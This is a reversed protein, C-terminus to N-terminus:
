PEITYRIKIGSIYMETWNANTPNGNIDTCTAWISYHYTDNDVVNTAFINITETRPGSVNGNTSFNVINGSGGSSFSVRRLEVNIRNAASNDYYKISIQNIVAGHPLQVSAALETNENFNGSAAINSIFVPKEDTAHFAAPALSLYRTVAPAEVINGLADAGLQRIGTGALANFRVNGAVHFDTAPVAVGIGVRGTSRGIVLLNGLEGGSNRGFFELQSFISGVYRLGLGLTGTNNSALFLTATDGVTATAPSVMLTTNSSNSEVELDADPTADNIGVKGGSWYIDNGSQIWKGDDKDPAAEWQSGNWKLVDGNSITGLVVDNMDDLKIFPVSGATEAHLAYPSSRFVQTGILTKSGGQPTLYIELKYHIFEWNLTNFNGSVIQGEGINLRFLGYNDTTIGHTEEYEPTAGNLIVFDVTIPSNTMPQGAADRAVAQFAIGQPVTQAHAIMSITFSLLLFISIKIHM